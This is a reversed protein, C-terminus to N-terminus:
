KLAPITLQQGVRIIGPNKGIVKKNANYINVWKYGDKYQSVAIKWLNEGKSVVHTGQTVVTPQATKTPTTIKPTTLKATIAPDAAPIKLTQGARVVYPSKINNAKAITTWQYGDKMESEAIKWLHDGAKVTYEGAKAQTESEKKMLDEASTQKGADSIQPTTNLTSRRLLFLLGLGIAVVVVFGLVTSIESEYMRFRDFATPATKAAM